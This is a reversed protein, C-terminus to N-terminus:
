PRVQRNKRANMIMIKNYYAKRTLRKSHEIEPGISSDETFCDGSTAQIVYEYAESGKQVFQPYALSQVFPDSSDEPFDVRYEALTKRGLIFLEWSQKVQAISDM